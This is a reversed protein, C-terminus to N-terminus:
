AFFKDLSLELIHKSFVIWENSKEIEFEGIKYLQCLIRKAHFGIAFCEIDPICKEFCAEPSGITSFVIYHNTLRVGAYNFPHSILNKEDIKLIVPQKTEHKKKDVEILEKSIIEWKKANSDVKTTQYEDNKYFLCGMNANPRFAVAFCKSQSECLQFCQENSALTYSYHDYLRLGEYRYKNPEEILREKSMVLWNEDDIRISFHGKQYLHCWNNPGYLAAFCKITDKKCLNYCENTSNVGKGTYHGFLRMNKYIFPAENILTIGENKIPKLDLKERRTMSIFKADDSTEYNGTKHFYCIENTTDYSIADCQNERICLHYCDNENIVNKEFKYHNSLRIAWYKYFYPLIPGLVQKGITIFNVNKSARGYTRNCLLCEPYRGLRFTIFFCQLEMKCLTYCQEPTNTVLSKYRIELATNEYRYYDEGITVNIQFRFAHSKLFIVVCFLLKPVLWSKKLGFFQM